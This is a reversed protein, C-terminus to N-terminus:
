GCEGSKEFIFGFQWIKIILELLYGLIYFPKQKNEVKVDLIYGFKALNNVSEDLFYNLWITMM